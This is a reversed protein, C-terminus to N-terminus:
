TFLYIQYITNKKYWWKDQDTTWYTILCLNYTRSNQNRIVHRGRLKKIEKYSPNFNNFDLTPYKINKNMQITSKQMPCMKWIWKRILIGSSKMWSLLMLSHKRQLVLCLVQQSPYFKRFWRKYNKLRQHQSVILTLIDSEITRVCLVLIISSSLIQPSFSWDFCFLFSFIAKTLIYFKFHFKCQLSSYFSWPISCTEFTPFTWRGFTLPYRIKNNM